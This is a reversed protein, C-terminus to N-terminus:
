VLREWSFNVQESVLTLVYSSEISFICEFYKGVGLVEPIESVVELLIIKRTLCLNIINVDSFDFYRKVKPYMAKYISEKASFALTLCICFPLGSSNLTIEEQKNIIQNKIEFAIDEGIFSEIDVGLYQNDEKLSVVSIAISNSHSISGIIGTPWIPARDSGLHVDYVDHRLERIAKKAVYRGALFDARRKFVSHNLEEPMMIGLSYFLEDKYLAIDYSSMFISIYENMFCYKDVLFNM